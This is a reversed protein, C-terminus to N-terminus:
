RKGSPGLLSSMRLGETNSAQWRWGLGAHRPDRGARSSLWEEAEERGEIKKSHGDVIELPSPWAAFISKTSDATKSLKVKSRLIHRQLYPRLTSTVTSDHDLLYAVLAPDENPHPYLFIDHLM